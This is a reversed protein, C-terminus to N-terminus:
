CEFHLSEVKAQFESKRFVKSSIRNEAYRWKKVEIGLNLVYDDVAYDGMFPHVRHLIMMFM